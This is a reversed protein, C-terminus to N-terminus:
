RGIRPTANVFGTELENGMTLSKATGLAVCNIPDPSRYVSVKLKESLFEPLGQLLSGGGTMVVGSEKLDGVLEPPAQELAMGFVEALQEATDRVPEYVDKWNIEIRAPLGTVASRGKVEM